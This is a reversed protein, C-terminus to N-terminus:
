RSLREPPSLEATPDYRDWGESPEPLGFAALVARAAQAIEPPVDPGPDWRACLARLLQAPAKTNEFAPKGSTDTWGSQEVAALYDDIHELLHKRSSWAPAKAWARPAALLGVLNMFVSIASAARAAQQMAMTAEEPVPRVAAGSGTKRGARGSKASRSAAPVDWTEPTGDYAEWGAPPAEQGLANSFARVAEFVEAPVAATGKENWTAVQGRLQRAREVAALNQEDHWVLFADVADLLEASTPAHALTELRRPSTVEQIVALANSAETAREDPGGELKVITRQRASTLV